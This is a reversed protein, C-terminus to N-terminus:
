FVSECCNVTSTRYPVAARRFLKATCTLEHHQDGCKSKRIFRWLSIPWDHIQSSVILLDTFELLSEDLRKDNDFADFGRIPTLVTQQGLYGLWECRSHYRVAAGAQGRFLCDALKM